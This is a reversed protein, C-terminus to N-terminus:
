KWADDLDYGHETLLQNLHLMLVEKGYNESQAPIIYSAHTDTIWKCVAIADLADEPVLFGNLEVEFYGFRLERIEAHLQQATIPRQLAQIRETGLIHNENYLRARKGLSQWTNFLGMVDNSSGFRAVLTDNLEEIFEETRFEEKLLVKMYVKM